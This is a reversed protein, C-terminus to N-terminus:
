IQKRVTLVISKALPKSPNDTEYVEVTYERFCFAAFNDIYRTLVTSEVVTGPPATHFEIRVSATLPLKKTDSVFIAYKDKDLALASDATIKITISHRLHYTLTNFYGIDGKM